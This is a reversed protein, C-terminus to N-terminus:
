NCMLDLKEQISLKKYILSIHSFFSYQSFKSLNSYMCSHIKELETNRKITIFVTKWFDDSYDIKDQKITLSDIKSSCNEIIETLYNLHIDVLGYLTIHPLFTPSDYKKSLDDIVDTLYKSDEDSFLAWIAYM